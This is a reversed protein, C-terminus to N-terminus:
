KFLIVRKDEKTQAKKLLKDIPKTEGSYISIIKDLSSDIETLKQDVRTYFKIFYDISEGNKYVRGQRDSSEPFMKAYDTLIEKLIIKSENYIYKTPKSRNLNEIQEIKLEVSKVRQLRYKIKNLYVRGIRNLRKDLTDRTM